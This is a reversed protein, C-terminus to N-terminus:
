FNGYYLFILFETFGIARRMKKAVKSQHRLKANEKTANAIQAELAQAQPRQSSILAENESKLREITALFKAEGEAALRGAEESNKDLTVKLTMNEQMLNHIALKAAELDELLNETRSKWLAEHKSRLERDMIIKEAESPVQPPTTLTLWNGSKKLIRLPFIPFHVQSQLSEIQTKLQSLEHEFKEDAMKSSEELAMKEARLNDLESM